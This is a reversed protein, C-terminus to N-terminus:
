YLEMKGWSLTKDSKVYAKHTIEEWRGYLHVFQYVVRYLYLGIIKINGINYHIGEKPFIFLQM